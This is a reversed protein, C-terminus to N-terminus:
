PEHGAQIDRVERSGLQAQPSDSCVTDVIEILHAVHDGGDLRELVRGVAYDCGELIPTGDGAPHWRCRAFKDAPAIADATVGGFLQALDHQGRRLFHLALTQAGLAVRYTHNTKSICVLWRHPHISCQTHFGVLCGSRERGDFATVVAM